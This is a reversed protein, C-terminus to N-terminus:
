VHSDNVKVLSSHHIAWSISCDLYRAEEGATKVHCLSRGKTMNRWHLGHNTCHIRCHHKWGTPDGHRHHFVSIQNAMHIVSFAFQNELVSQKNWSYLAKVQSKGSPPPYSHCTQTYHTGEHFRNHSHPYNALLTLHWTIGGDHFVKEM